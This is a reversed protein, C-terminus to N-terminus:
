NSNQGRIEEWKNREIAINAILNFANERNFTEYNQRYFVELFENFYSGGFGLKVFENNLDRLLKAHFYSGLRDPECLVDTILWEAFQANNANEPIKTSIQYIRPQSNWPLREKQAVSQIANHWVAGTDKWNFVKRALEGNAPRQKDRLIKPKNFFSILENKLHENDPIARTCNTQIEHYMAKVKIPTGNIKRVVDSMASYDVSMVPVGCCAAEIQPIGLGESNAYQVYLDFMNYIYSLNESTVGISTNTMGCKDSGCSNCCSLADSFVKPEIKGCNLCQYTFLVRHGIDYKQLYYPFDWGNGDPYSTHCWLWVDNRKTENLFLSFSEFLDPFLKRGQNRMVTGIINEYKSLGSERKIDQRNNLPFFAPDVAAPAAGLLNVRGNSEKRLVESNWNTYTLVGEANIFTNIWDPNQPEADVAPLILWNFHKRFPSNQEHIFHWHDRIDFVVDPKFKLLTENFKFNGYENIVNSGYASEEAESEPMNHFLKWPSDHRRDNKKGYCAFEAIDLDEYKVLETLLNKMYTGYGSSLFSGEGCALVKTKM